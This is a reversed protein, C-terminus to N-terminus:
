LFGVCLLSSGACGFIFLNTLNFPIKFLLHIKYTYIKGQHLLNLICIQTHTHTYLVISSSFFILYPFNLTPLHFSPLWSFILSVSLCFVLFSLCPCSLHLPHCEFMPAFGEDISVHESLCLFLSLFFSYFHKASIAFISYYENNNGKTFFEGALAPSMFSMPEMGPNPLDGPPPFPLGSWYEQRPFRM